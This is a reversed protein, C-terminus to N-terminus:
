LNNTAMNCYAAKSTPSIPPSVDLCLDHTAECITRLPSLPTPTSRIEPTLPETPTSCESSSASRGTYTYIDVILDQPVSAGVALHMGLSELWVEMVEFPPRKDPNLECCLFAIRYFPEPCQHCFKERFAAQNLGFDGSRPLYDPDAEVRGIIECLVIGFSFVDVKEDYKKGTLMEPAM